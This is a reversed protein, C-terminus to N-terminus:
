RQFPGARSFVLLSRAEDVGEQCRTLVEPQLLAIQSFHENGVVIGEADELTIANLRPGKLEVPVDITIPDAIAIGFAILAPIVDPLKKHGNDGAYLDAAIRHPPYANCFPRASEHWNCVPAMMM